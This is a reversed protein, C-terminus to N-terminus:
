AAEKHHNSSACGRLMAALERLRVSMSKDHKTSEPGELLGAVQELSTNSPGPLLSCAYDVTLRRAEVAERLRKERLVPDTGMSVYWRPAARAQREADVSKTYVDLFCRRAGVEDGLDLIPQCAEWGQRIPDTYLGTEREDNIFRVLLGWAEDGGPHMDACTASLHKVIDAPKPLYQGSKTDLLHAKFASSVASLPYSELLEFWAAIDEGEPIKGYFRWTKALLGAFDPKDTTQM